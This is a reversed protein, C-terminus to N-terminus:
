ASTCQRATFLIITTWPSRRRVNTSMTLYEVVKVGLKIFVAGTKVCRALGHCAKSVNLMHAVSQLM